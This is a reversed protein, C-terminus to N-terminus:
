DPRQDQTPHGGTDIVRADPLAHRVIEYALNVWQPCADLVVSDTSAVVGSAQILQADPSLSLESQWPWSHARGTQHILTRLRGSNSVPSDLLWLVKSLGQGEVFRGILEFAPVTEEVTRYTGHVGALDRLCGDRGKFLPAGSLAAEVTILLNYADIALSSLRLQGLPVMRARRSSLQQDTCASRMVARRQRVTLSFRDGVLKLAAHDAYGRTRLWSLDAVARQLGPVMRPSFIRGDEPHPGRHSRTDPMVGTAGLFRKVDGPGRSVM